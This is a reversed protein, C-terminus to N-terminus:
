TVGSFPTLTPAYPHHTYSTDRRSHIATQMAAPLSSPPPTAFFCFCFTITPTNLYHQHQVRYMLTNSVAPPLVCYISAKTVRHLHHQHHNYSLSAHTSLEYNLPKHRYRGHDPIIIIIPTGFFLIRATHVPLVAINIVLKPTTALLM